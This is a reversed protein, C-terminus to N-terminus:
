LFGGLEYHIETPSQYGDVSVSKSGVVSLPHPADRVLTYQSALIM